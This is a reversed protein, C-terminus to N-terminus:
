RIHNGIWNIYNPVYTYVGPYGAQACGYGFSVVGIQQYADQSAIMMPGGSDGQCTDKGGQDYAACIVNKWKFQNNSGMLDDYAQQCKNMNYTPILVEYLSSSPTYSTQSHVGWGVMTTMEGVQRGSNSNLEPLCVPAIDSDTGFVLPEKLRLLAIDDNHYRPSYSEHAIVKDVEVFRGSNTLNHAGIKITFDSPALTGFNRHVCHAACLIYRQHIITAGCSFSKRGNNVRYLAVAWPWSHPIAEIGGVILNSTKLPRM